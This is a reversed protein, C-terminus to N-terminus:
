KERKKSSKKDERLREYGSPFLNAISRPTTDYGHKKM